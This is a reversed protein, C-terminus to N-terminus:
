RAMSGALQTPPQERLPRRVIPSPARDIRHFAGVRRTVGDFGDMFIPPEPPEGALLSLEPTKAFGAGFQEFHAWGSYPSTPWNVWTTGAVFRNLHLPLPLTPGGAPEVATLVYTGAALFHAGGVFPVDVSFPTDYVCAVPETSDIIDGPVSAVDDFARLNVVFDFGACPTPSPPNQGDDAPIANLAFHAGAYWGDAPITLQVGLEGGNGAGIGLTSSVEGEWRALENGGIAVGPIEIANNAPDADNANQDSSLTYRTSWTGEGSYAAPEAFALPATAGVALTALPASTTVAPGSAAGDLLPEAFGAVNTLVAAGLNRATVALSPVIDMGLPARAYESTYPPTPAVAQLDPASSSVRVDDVLLLFKDNSNNRFGVYVVQGAYASLDVGRQTWSSEEAPTSFVTTSTSQNAQTPADGTKVRVEYGDRYAPDYAVARWSLNAGGAPISISPSWMWDDAQGLPAYYSTSFAVCEAANFSFDDRVIWADTVYAVQADPTHNDVNFRQWGAPFPHDVGGVCDDPSPPTFPEYFLDAANAAAATCALVIASVAFMGTTKMM